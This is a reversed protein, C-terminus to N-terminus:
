KIEYVVDKREVVVKWGNRIAHRYLKRNPNFCIPNDVLELMSMDGETDGIGYSETLTLGEKEIARKVVNAKNEIIHEDIIKGTFKDGPGIEYLRGYSKDFGFKKVFLDVITRPSQSIALLFYNKAGLKEILDRTYTYTMSSQAKVVKKSADALTGYHVGKINKIYTRVLASIYDEYTGKRNHWASLEKHFAGGANASFAGISILEEFLEVILSSRFITGDIDFIAVKRKAM